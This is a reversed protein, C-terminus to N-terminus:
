ATAAILGYQHLKNYLTMRSIGLESAAKLRNNNNRALAERIRVLEATERTESLTAATSVAPAAPLVPKHGTDLVFAPLDGLGIQEGPCLAVAREIANRLERINGPWSYDQLARLADCDIGKVPRQNKAAFENIFHAVIAPVVGMRERLPPLCFAVVNLRYYLDARFRGAAVERDLAQNSAVILRAQMAITRNSGVPEFLREEVVRLLKPQLELPLADVDDLFLTGCGVEAFKGGRDRDAGTFAGKVHGFLESEILHASLSACNTTVFPQNRRPSLDHILRALRTKGTGTEGGLIISVDQPAVRRVQDMLMEMTGSPTCIFDSGLGGIASPIARPQRSAPAHRVRVTLVELLYALRRLDLPRDLYDAAGYRLFKLAEAADYQESIVLTAVPRRELALDRLVSTTQVADNDSSLHALLLSLDPRRLREGADKLTPITQLQLHSVSGAADEVSRRLSVDPSILLATADHM